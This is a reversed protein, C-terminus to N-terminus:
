GDAMEILRVAAAVRQPIDIEDDRRSRPRAQHTAVAHALRREQLADHPQQRRGGAPDLECADIEDATRGLAARPEADAVHRLSAVDKRLQGDLLIQADAQAHPFVTRARNRRVDIVQKGRQLLHRAAAAAIEGAALLLLERNRTRQDELRRQQNEVLRRFPNLRVDHLLDAIDQEREIAVGADRQEEHLLLQAEGATDRAVEPDEFFPPAKGAARDVLERVFQDAFM